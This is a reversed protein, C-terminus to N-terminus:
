PPPCDNAREAINGAADFRRRPVSPLRPDRLRRGGMPPAPFRLRLLAALMAAWPDVSEVSGVSDVPVPGNIALVHDRVAVAHERTGADLARWIARVNADIPFIELTIDSACLPSSSFRIGTGGRYLPLLLREVRVDQIAISL